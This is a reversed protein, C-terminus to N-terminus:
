WRSQDKEREGHRCRPQFARKGKADQMTELDDGDGDHRLGHPAHCSIEAGVLLAGRDRDHGHKKKGPCRAGNSHHGGYEKACDAPQNEVLSLDRDAVMQRHRNRACGSHCGKRQESGQQDTERDERFMQAGLAKELLPTVGEDRLYIAYEDAKARTTRGRWIRAIRADAPRSETM